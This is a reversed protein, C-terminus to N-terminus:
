RMCGRRNMISKRFVNLSGYIRGTDSTYEKEEVMFLSGAYKLRMTSNSLNYFQYSTGVPFFIAVGDIFRKFNLEMPSLYKDGDVHDGPATPSVALVARILARNSQGFKEEIKTNGLPKRGYTIACMQMTSTMNRVSPKLGSDTIALYLTFLSLFLNSINAENAKFIGQASTVQGLADEASTARMVDGLVNVLIDDSDRSTLETGMSKLTEEHASMMAGAVNQMQTLDKEIGAGVFLTGMYDQAILRGTVRTRAASLGSIGCEMFNQAAELADEIQAEWKSSAAGISDGGKQQEKMMKLMKISSTIVPVSEAGCLAITMSKDSVEYSKDFTKLSHCIDPLSNHFSAFYDNCELNFAHIQAENAELSTQLERYLMFDKTISKLNEAHVDFFEIAAILIDPLKKKQDIFFSAQELRKICSAILEVEAKQVNGYNANDVGAM